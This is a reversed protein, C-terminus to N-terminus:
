RYFEEYPVWKLLVPLYICVLSEEYRQEHSHWVEAM